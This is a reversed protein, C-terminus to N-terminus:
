PTASRKTRPPAADADAEEHMSRATTSLAFEDEIQTHASRHVNGDRHQSRVARSMGLRPRRQHLLM